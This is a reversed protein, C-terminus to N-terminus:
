ERYDVHEERRFGSGPVPPRPRQRASRHYATYADVINWVYLALAIVFTVGIWRASPSRPEYTNFRMGLAYADFIKWGALVFFACANPVFTMLFFVGAFPRHQVFQGLGPCVLGSLVM